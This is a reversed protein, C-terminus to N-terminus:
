KACLKGKPQTLNLAPSTTYNRDGDLGTAIHASPVDVETFLMEVRPHLTLTSTSDQPHLLSM